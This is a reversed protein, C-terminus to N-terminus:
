LTTVEKILMKLGEEYSSFGLGSVRPINAHDLVLVKRFPERHQVDSLHVEVCPVQLALVADLLSISYHGLAAPNLLVGDYNQKFSKHLWSLIKYEKNSQKVKLKISYRKKLSALYHKLDKYTDKGYIEVQRTGLLNLNPGNIVLFKMIFRRSKRQSVNM